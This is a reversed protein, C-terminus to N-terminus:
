SFNQYPATISNPSKNQVEVTESEPIFEKLLSFVLACTLGHVHKVETKWLNFKQTKAIASEFAQM